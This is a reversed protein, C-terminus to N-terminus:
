SNEVLLLLLMDTRMRVVKNFVRIIRKLHKACHAVFLSSDFTGVFRCM